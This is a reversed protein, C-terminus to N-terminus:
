HMHWMCTIATAQKIQGLDFFTLPPPAMIKLNCASHIAFSNYTVNDIYVFVVAFLCLCCSNWQSGIFYLYSSSDLIRRCLVLELITMDATGGGTTVYEM